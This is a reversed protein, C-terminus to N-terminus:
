ALALDPADVSLSSTMAESLPPSGTPRIHRLSTLVLLAVGFLVLASAAILMLPTSSFAALTSALGFGTAGIMLLKRRGIRDGLNGMTIMFGAVMFGYM